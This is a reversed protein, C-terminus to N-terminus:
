QRATPWRKFESYFILVILENSVIPFYESLVIRFINDLLSFLFIDHNTVFTFRIRHNITSCNIRGFCIRGLFIYSRKLRNLSRFIARWPSLQSTRYVRARSMYIYYICLYICICLSLITLHKLSERSIGSAHYAEEPTVLFDKVFSERNSNCRKSLEEKSIIEIPENM